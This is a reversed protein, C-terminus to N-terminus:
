VSRGYAWTTGTLHATALSRWIGVALVTNPTVFASWELDDQVAHVTKGILDFLNPFFDPRNRGCRHVCPDDCSIGPSPVGVWQRRKLFHYAAITAHKVVLEFSGGLRRSMTVAKRSSHRRLSLRIVWVRQWICCRWRDARHRGVEVPMRCQRPVRMRVDQAENHEVVVVKSDHCPILNASSRRFQPCPQRLDSCRTKYYTRRVATTDPAVRTLLSCWQLIDATRNELM